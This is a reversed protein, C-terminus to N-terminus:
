NIIDDKTVCFMQRLIKPTDDDQQFLKEALLEGTSFVSDVDLRRFNKKKGLPSKLEEALTDLHKWDTLCPHSRSLFNQQRSNGALIYKEAEASSATVWGEARMNASWRNHEQVFMSEVIKKLVRIVKEQFDIISALYDHIKDEPIPNINKSNRGLKKVNSLINNLQECSTVATFDMQEFTEAFIKLDSVCNSENVVTWLTTLESDLKKLLGYFEELKSVVDHKLFNTRSDKSFIENDDTIDPFNSFIERDILSLAFVRYILSTAVAASSRRNYTWRIFDVAAKRCEEDQFNKSTVGFYMCHVALAIRSYIDKVLNEFNYCLQSGFIKIRYNNYWNIGHKEGLVISRQAMFSVDPSKLRVAVPVNPTAETKSFKIWARTLLERVRIALSLNELDKESADIAFYLKDGSEVAKNIFNALDEDFIQPTCPLGPLFINKAQIDVGGLSIEPCTLKLEHIRIEACPSLLTIKSRIKMEDPFIMLESAKKLLEISTQGDGVIVFHLTELVNFIKKMVPLFLPFKTLLEQAALKNEDLIQVRLNPHEANHYWQQLATDVISILREEAGRIIITANEPSKDKMTELLFLFDELNKQEDLDILLCVSQSSKCIKDTSSSFEKRNAACTIKWSQPTTRMIIKAAANEESVNLLFQGAGVFSDKSFNECFSIMENSYEDVADKFGYRYAMRLYDPNNDQVYLRWYVAGRIPEPASMKLKEVLNKKYNDNWHRPFNKDTKYRDSTEKESDNIPWLIKLLLLEAQSNDSIVANDLLALFNKTDDKELYMMALQFCAEGYKSRVKVLQENFFNKQENTIGDDDIGEELYTLATELHERKTTPSDSLDATRYFILSNWLPNNEETAKSLFEEAQKLNKQEYFKLATEFEAQKKPSPNGPYINTLFNIEFLRSSIQQWYGRTIALITLVAFIKELYTAGSNLAGNLWQFLKPCDNSLTQREGYILKRACDHRTIEMENHNYAKFEELPANWKRLIEDADVASFAQACKKYLNKANGNRVQSFSAESYQEGKENYFLKKSLTEPLFNRIFDRVDRKGPHNTLLQDLTIKNRRLDDYVYM